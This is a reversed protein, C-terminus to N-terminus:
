WIGMYKALLPLHETNSLTNVVLFTLVGLIEELTLGENKQEFRLKKQEAPTLHKSTAPAQSSSAQTSANGCHNEQSKTKKNKQKGTKVKKATPATDQDDSVDTADPKRKPLM